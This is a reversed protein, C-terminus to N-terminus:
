GNDDEKLLKDSEAQYDKDRDIDTFWELAMDQIARDSEQPTYGIDILVDKLHQV